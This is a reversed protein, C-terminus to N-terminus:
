EKEGDKLREKLFALFVGAWSSLEENQRKVCGFLVQNENGTLVVDGGYKRWPKGSLYGGSINVLDSVQLIREMIYDSNTTIM